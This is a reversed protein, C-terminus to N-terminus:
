WSAPWSIAAPTVANACPPPPKRESSTSGGAWTESAAIVRRSITYTSSQEPLMAPVGIAADFRKM